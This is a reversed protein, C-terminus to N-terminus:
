GEEEEFEDGLNSDAAGIIGQRVADDFMQRTAYAFVRRTSLRGSPTPPYVRFRVLMGNDLLAKVGRQVTVWSTANGGAAKSREVAWKHITGPKENTGLLAEGFGHAEIAEKVIIANKTLAPTYGRGGCKSCLGCGAPILGTLPLGISRSVGNSGEIM